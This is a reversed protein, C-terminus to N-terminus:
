LLTEFYQCSPFFNVTPQWHMNYEAYIIPLQSAFLTACCLTGSVRIVLTGPPLFHAATYYFSIDYTTVTLTYTALVTGGTTLYELKDLVVARVAGTM